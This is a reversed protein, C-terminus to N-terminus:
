RGHWLSRRLHPRHRCSVRAQGSRGLTLYAFGLVSRYGALWARRHADAKSRIGMAEKADTFRHLWEEWDALYGSEFADWENRSQIFLPRLGRRRGGSDLLSALAGLAEAQSGYAQDSGVCLVLDVAEAQTPAEGEVFQIRNLLGREEANRPGRALVRGDTDIGIGIAGESAAM